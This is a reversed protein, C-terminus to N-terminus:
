ENSIVPIENLVNELNEKNTKDAYQKKLKELEKETLLSSDYMYILLLRVVTLTGSPTMTKENPNWLINKWLIQIM